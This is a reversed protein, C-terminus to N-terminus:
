ILMIKSFYINLICECAPYVAGMYVSGHQIIGNNKDPPPPPLFKLYLKIFINASLTNLLGTFVSCFIKQKLYVIFM